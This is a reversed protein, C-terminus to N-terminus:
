PREAAAVIPDVIEWAREIEDARMFLSADGQIADLLLREYAEPLPKEAYAEKYSFSLDRPQLRVGDVDPEKTQFNLRIGENPQLVLTMRNCQLVEGAPLPFMLHPPCLFQVVVESFRAALAKGSRLYFPVGRWRWNDVGLKLAAFTPTRSDPEVGKEKRYGEYQGIVVQGCAEEVTPVTVADLVKVKEDRLRDANFRSPAEMAVLTLLQMLHGQIMDRFVGTSEYFAGRSGVPVTEAVTIQVHEIYNHNWLPEWMTNAFRFVLINQVTEKGLYHDIRFLQDERFHAHLRRNLERATQLDRGFPKELVLRRFGGKEEALGAEALRDVIAPVLEPAVSLYYLRDGAKEGERERLRDRLAALGGAAAADGAVYHLRGAFEKWKGEDWGKGAAAKAGGVLHARFQDDTMPSRSVGVIQADAPLRGKGFAQFLAPVLKRATLDGSAGFIVITLPM